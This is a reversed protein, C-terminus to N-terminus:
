SNKVTLVVGEWALKYQVYTHVYYQIDRVLGCRVQTLAFCFIREAVIAEDIEMKEAGVLAVSLGFSLLNQTQQLAQLPHKIM